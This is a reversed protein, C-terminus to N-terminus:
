TFAMAEKPPRFGYQVLGTPGLRSRLRNIIQKRRYDYQNKSIKNGKGNGKYDNYNEIIEALLPANAKFTRNIMTMGPNGALIRSIIDKRQAQSVPGYYNKLSRASITEPDFRISCPTM